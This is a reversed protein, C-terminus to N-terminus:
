LFQVSPCNIPSLNRLFFFFPHSVPSLDRSAPYLPYSVLPLSTFSPVASSLCPVSVHSLPCLVSSLSCLPLVPSKPLSVLFLSWCLCPVYFTLCPCSFRVSSHTVPLFSTFKLFYMQHASIIKVYAWGAFFLKKCMNLSYGNWFSWELYASCVCFTNWRQSLCRPFSKLVCEALTSINLLWIDRSFWIPNERAHIQIFARNFMLPNAYQRQDDKMVERKHVKWPITRGNSSPPSVLSM